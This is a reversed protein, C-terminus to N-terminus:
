LYFYDDLLGNFVSEESHYRRLIREWSSKGFQIENGFSDKYIWRDFIDKSLSAKETGDIYELGGNLTRKFSTKTGGYEEVVNENGFIDTGRKLKYGQNDEIILNDFIDISFKASYSSQRRNERILRTLMESQKKKDALVGPFERELYKKEFHLKNNKSDTFVLDDFINRELKAKYSKDNSISELNGFIDEQIQRRQADVTSFVFFLLLFTSFQKM